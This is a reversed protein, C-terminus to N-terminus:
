EKSDSVSSPQGIRSETGALLKKINERHRIVILLAMLTVGASYPLSALWWHTIFPAAIATVLAALSSLRTAIAIALWSAVAILGIPWSLGFLCGAATAVGKGGQFGFYLPWLHG